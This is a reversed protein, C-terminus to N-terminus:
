RGKATEGQVGERCAQLLKESYGDDNVARAIALGGIMMVAKHMAETESIKQGEPMAERIIEIFGQLVRTYTSRVNDDRQHIDTTLFALPCCIDEGRRHTDSLYYEIIASLTNEPHEMTRSKAQRAAGLIAEAYLESKSSFHNYFAGRTLGAHRMVDNIGVNDFGDRTFLEAASSVIKERSQQKQETTWGM